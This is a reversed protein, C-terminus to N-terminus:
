WRITLSKGRAEELADVGKRTINTRVLRLETLKELGKLMLLGTDSLKSGSLNLEELKKFGLLTPVARDTLPADTIVLVRLNVLKKLGELGADSLRSENIALTDLTRLTGIAAAAPATMSAKGLILKQLDPLEKLVAYGKDTIKTADFITLSGIAPLKALQVLDADTAKEFNVAVRAIEDLKEDLKAEGKLALVGTITLEELEDACASSTGLICSILTFLITKMVIVLVPSFPFGAPYWNGWNLRDHV